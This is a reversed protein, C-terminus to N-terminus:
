EYGTKTQIDPHLWHSFSSIKILQTFVITGHNEPNEKTSRESHFLEQETMNPFNLRLLYELELKLALTLIENNEYFQAQKITDSLIEFCEEFLSREYLMRAKCLNNLLDYYVDKKKRLTILTEVLKEYLYQISVEFSGNPRRKYFEDKVLNGNPQKSKTIIDYIVLYDKEEKDKVVQM